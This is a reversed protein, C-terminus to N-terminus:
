ALKVRAFAEELAPAGDVEARIIFGAQNTEAYLENLRQVTPSLSDVIWYQRFDGLLGVYLGTTFTNPAYESMMVPFSLLRDPQGAQVGPQWLYQGNGDKLKAIQKVGDRHFLWRAQGWYNAKLSYKAELLGDTQVSTTTNGTSVDRATSIGNASATFVGLPRGSGSGSLFAKEEPIAIKYALRERVLGEVDIGAARLLKNSVKLRKALPHPTLERKGFDMATDESGTGLESTWDSDAPDADLSPVGLSAARVVTRKTALPRMFVLDDVAQILSAVFEQPPVVYGGAENSDAQLARREVESTAALGGRLFKGFGARAEAKAREADGAPAGDGGRGDGDQRGARSGQGAALEAELAALGQDREAQKKLEDARAMLADWQKQEEASFDRGAKKALEHLERAEKVAKARQELFVRASM